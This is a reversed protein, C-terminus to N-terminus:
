DPRRPDSRPPRDPQRPRGARRLREAVEDVGLSRLTLAQSPVDLEQCRTCELIPTGDANRVSHWQHLGLRCLLPRVV